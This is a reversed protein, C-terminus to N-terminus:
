STGQARSNERDTFDNPSALSEIRSAVRSLHSSNPQMFFKVMGKEMLEDFSVKKMTSRTFGACITQFPNSWVVLEHKNKAGAGILPTIDSM